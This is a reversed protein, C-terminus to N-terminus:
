LGIPAPPDLEPLCADGLADQLKGFRQFVEATSAQNAKREAGKAVALAYTAHAREGPGIDKFPGLVDDIASAAREQPIWGSKTARIPGDGTNAVFECLYQGTTSVRADLVGTTPQGGLFVHAPGSLRVLQWGAPSSPGPAPTEAAELEAALARVEAVLRAADKKERVRLVTGTPTLLEAAPLPIEAEDDQEEESVTEVPISATLADVGTFWSALRDGRPCRVRMEDSSGTQDPASMMSSVCGDRAVISVVGKDAVLVRQVHPAIKAGTLAATGAHPPATAKRNAGCASLSVLAASAFLLVLTRPQTSM